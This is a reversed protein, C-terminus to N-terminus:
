KIFREIIRDKKKTYPQYRMPLDIWLKKDVISKYHSFTDFGKKGHYSGIGSEKFGGFGLQQTALHIVVDNICGGGFELTSIAKRILRKNKSFIYFALPTDQKSIYSFAEEVSNYTLIPLLPGFIEEQMIADEPTVGDIITPEIKLSAEEFDGGFVVKNCDILSLLRTFHTKHIIKGYSSNTLPHKSYQKLIQKKLEEVLQSHIVKDCYIYDPAVCTQGLNLFKGWVIRKAALKINCTRDVLCPCKGGLELTVPTGHKAAQEYVINGVKKSGTFFIYDFKMELLATNEEYGGFVVTVYEQPFVSQILQLIVQNTYASYESLKLVVTNGAAIAEALPDLSLLFPYNWPSMVLVVGYPNPFEFSKAAFQALPTKVKHPKAFHSLHKFLYRIENLVLGIECMYSESPSKGLDKQLAASIAQTQEKISGYLKKLYYKRFAIDLTKGTVFFDRQKKVLKIIEMKDMKCVRGEIQEIIGLVVKFLM